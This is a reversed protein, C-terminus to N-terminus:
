MEEMLTTFHLVRQEWKKAASDLLVPQYSDIWEVLRENGDCRFQIAFNVTNGESPALIRMIITDRMACDRRATEIYVCKGWEIFESVLPEEVCFTTNVIM